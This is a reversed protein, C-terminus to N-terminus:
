KHLPEPNTCSCGPEFCKPDVHSDKSPDLEPGGQMISPATHLWTHTLLLVTHGCNKCIDVNERDNM